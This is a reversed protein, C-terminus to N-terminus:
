FSSSKGGSILSSFINIEMWLSPAAPEFTEFSDCLDMFIEINMNLRSQQPKTKDRRSCFIQECILSFFLVLTKTKGLEWWNAFFFLLTSAFM